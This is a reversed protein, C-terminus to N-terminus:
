KGELKKKQWETLWTDWQKLVEAYETDSIEEESHLSCIADKVDDYKDYKELLDFMISKIHSVKEEYDADKPEYDEGDLMVTREYAGEDNVDTIPEFLEIEDPAGDVYNHRWEVDDTEEGIRIFSYPIEQEEYQDLVKNFNQVQAYSDYWKIDLFTVKYCGSTSQEVDAYALPKDCKDKVLNNFRRMLLWGETTTKLYVNSRYGM